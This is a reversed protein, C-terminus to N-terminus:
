VFSVGREVVPRIEELGRYNGLVQWLLQPNVNAPLESIFLTHHVTGPTSVTPKETVLAAFPVDSPRVVTKYSGPGMKVQQRLLLLKDILKRQRKTEKNRISEDARAQREVKVSEDFTGRM